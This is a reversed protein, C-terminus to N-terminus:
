VPMLYALEKELSALLSKRTAADMTKISKEIKRNSISSLKYAPLLMSNDIFFIRNLNIDMIDLANGKYSGRLYAKARNLLTDQAYGRGTIKFRDIGIKRYTKIDEPRILASNKLILAPDKLKEYICLTPLPIKPPSNELHSYIQGHYSEYPCNRNCSSNAVLSLEIKLDKRLQKLLSLDVNASLDLTIRHVGLDQWALAKPVTNIDCFASATLRLKPFNRKIMKVLLPNTLTLCRAGIDSLHGLLRDLKKKYKHDFEKNGLCVANFIYNFKLGKKQAHKIHGLLKEPTVPPLLGAQRGCGFGLNEPLGGYLEEIRRGLRSYNRNLEIVADIIFDSFDTPLSFKAMNM